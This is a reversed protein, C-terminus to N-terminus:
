AWPVSVPPLCHTPQRNRSLRHRDIPSTTSGLGTTSTVPLIAMHTIFQGPAATFSLQQQGSVNAFISGIQTAGNFFILGTSAFNAMGAFDVSVQDVDVSFNARLSPDGDEGLWGAFSRIMNGSVLSPTGLGGVDTGTSSVVTRDSNTAWSTTPGGTGSFYNSLFTVGFASYQNGLAAGVALGGIPDGADFTLTRIQASAPAAVLSLLAVIRLPSSLYKNM